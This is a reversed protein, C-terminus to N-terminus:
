KKKFLSIIIGAIALLPLSSPEPLTVEEYQATLTIDREVIFNMSPATSITTGAEDLWAVFKYSPM